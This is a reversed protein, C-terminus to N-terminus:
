CRTPLASWKSCPAAPPMYGTSPPSRNDTAPPSSATACLWPRFAKQKCTKSPICIVWAKLCKRGRCLTPVISGTDASPAAMLANLSHSRMKTIPFATSVAVTYTSPLVASPVAVMASCELHWGPRGEGWPSPWYHRTKPNRSKLPSTSVSERDYEDADNREASNKQQTKLDGQKLRSLSGYKDFSGVRFYVSGDDSVHCKRPSWNKSSKLKSRFIRLQM